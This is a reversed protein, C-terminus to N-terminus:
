QQPPQQGGGGKVVQLIQQINKVMQILNPLGAELIQADQPSCQHTQECKAYVQALQGLGGQNGGQQPQGGAPPSASRNQLAAAVMDKMGPDSM